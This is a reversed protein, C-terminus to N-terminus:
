FQQLLNYLLLQTSPNKSNEYYSLLQKSTPIYVYKLLFRKCKPPCVTYNLNFQTKLTNLAHVM